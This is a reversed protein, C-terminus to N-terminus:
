VRNAPGWSLQSRADEATAVKALAYEELKGAKLASAANAINRTVQDSKPM